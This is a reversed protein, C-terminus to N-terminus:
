LTKQIQLNNVEIVLTTFLQKCTRDWVNYSKKQTVLLKQKKQMIIESFIKSKVSM